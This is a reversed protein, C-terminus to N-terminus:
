RSLEDRRLASELWSAARLLSADAHAGAVLQIGLPLGSADKTHPLNLCPLGLATWIGNFSSDGTSSLGEPAPGAASPTLLVDFDKLAQAFWRRWRECVALAECWEARTTKMGAEVRERFIASYRERHHETEWVMSRAIEYRMILAHALFLSEFDADVSLEVLTAGAKAFRQAAEEIAARMAPQVRGWRSTRFLGVRPATQASADIDLGYLAHAFLAVDAVERGFLGVTDLSEASLKLGSRSIEGFSPKFGVIGCFSSPRVTSGGTQTGFALPVMFDAVAAASGSSSGGPTYAPNNPNRTPPPHLNAFEATHTKGLIIAGAARAAAVCAADARSRWGDYIPSGNGTPFDFTDFVDKVGVPLGHLIGAPTGLRDLERARAIAAERDIVVWAQVVEERADIRAICDRVLAECTIRGERILRIAQVASLTCLEGAAM